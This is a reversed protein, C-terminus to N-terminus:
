VTLSGIRVADVILDVNESNIIMFVMVGQILTIEVEYLINDGVNGYHIHSASVNTHLALVESVAFRNGVSDTVTLLWKASRYVSGDLAEIVSSSMSPITIRIPVPQGTTTLGGSTLAVILANLDIQKPAIKAM